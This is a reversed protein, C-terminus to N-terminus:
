RREVEYVRRGGAQYLINAMQNGSCWDLPTSRDRKTGIANVDANNLLLMVAINVRGYQVAKHLPTHGRFDRCNIDANYEILLRIIEQNGISACVHLATTGSNRMSNIDINKNRLLERVISVYGKFSFYVLADCYLQEPHDM